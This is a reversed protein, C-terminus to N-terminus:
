VDFKVKVLSIFLERVKPDLIEQSSNVEPKVNILALTDIKHTTLDIGGGWIDRQRGGKEVILKEGDAHWEGGITMMGSSVDIVIKIFDGYDERAKELDAESIKDKVLVVM